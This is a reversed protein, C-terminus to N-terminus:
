FSALDIPVIVEFRNRNGQAGERDLLYSYRVGFTVPLQNWWKTDFYIEAGTSRLADAVVKDNSYLRSYDFYLNSRIRLFYVISAVGWDPYVLPMHYNFGGNWMRSYYYDPYGRALSFRNSFYLAGTDTQQYSGTLVISHNTFLAPLYLATQVNAQYGTQDLRHRYAVSAAYGLKPYIHQRAKQLQQAWGAFHHLYHSSTNSAVEKTSGTPVTQNYVYNSGFNLSKLTKGKTLNLPINYGIRAEWTNFTLTRSPRRVERNFTYELGGNIVPFWGGYSANWGAAHSNESENYVYDLETSFTNLINNSYLTLGPDWSHLNILGTSKKYKEVKFPRASNALLSESEGAIAYSKKMDEAVVNNIERWELDKLNRKNM